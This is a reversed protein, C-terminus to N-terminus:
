SSAYATNEDIYGHTLDCGLAEGTGQGVGLEVRIEVPDGGLEARVRAEDFELVRGDKVVPIGQIWAGVREPRVRCDTCKGVAMLIRGTNPDAGHAMTKVLPSDCISRAVTRAETDDAAGRVRVVLLKTAGEGDRGIAEAMTRSLHTVVGGLVAGDVEGASGSALGVVMDSTSTDTDVSLVQFSDRAGERLYRGLENAGVRADTLVFVLMTALNPAIMGAGKGLITVTADGASASFAKPVRDTTMIGRAASMPDSGLRGSMGDLGCRIPGLPIRRGIVGTSAVLVLEPSLGLEAGALSAMTRADELGEPGTAVNSIKSNAVIAQLRGKALRERALLIPAGPFHNRTLLGAATCPRDAMLLALDEGDEPAKLGCNLAACSFGRPLRPRDHLQTM